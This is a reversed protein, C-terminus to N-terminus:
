KQFYVDLTILLFLTAFAGITAALVWNMEFYMLIGAVILIILPILIIGLIAITAIGMAQLLRNM